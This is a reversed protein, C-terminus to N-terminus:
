ISCANNQDELMLKKALEDQTLNFFNRIERLFEM